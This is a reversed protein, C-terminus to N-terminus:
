ALAAQLVVMALVSALSNGARRDINRTDCRNSIQRPSCAGVSAHRAGGERDACSTRARHKNRLDQERAPHSTELISSVNMEPGPQQQQAVDDM